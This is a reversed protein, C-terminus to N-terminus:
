HGLFILVVRAVVGALVVFHLIGAILLPTRQNEYATRRKSLCLIGFVLAPIFTALALGLLLAIFLVAVIGAAFAVGIGAGVQAGPDTSTSSMSSEANEVFRQIFDWQSYMYILVGIGLALFIFAAVILGTRSVLDNNEQNTAPANENEM